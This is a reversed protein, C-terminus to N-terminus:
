RTPQDHYSTSAQLKAKYAFLCTNGLNSIIGFWTASAATGLQLMHAGNGPM